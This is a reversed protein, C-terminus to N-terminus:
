HRSVAVAPKRCLHWIGSCGAQRSGYILYPDGAALQWARGALCTMASCSMASGQDLTSLVFPRAPSSRGAFVTSAAGTAAYSALLALEAPLRDRGELAMESDPLHNPPPNKLLQESISILPARCIRGPPHSASNLELNSGRAASCLMRTWGRCYLLCEGCSAGAHRRDRLGCAM